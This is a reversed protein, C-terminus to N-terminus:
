GLSNCSSETYQSVTIVSISEWLRWMQQVKGLFWPFTDNMLCIYSLYMGHRPPLSAPLDIDTLYIYIYGPKVAPSSKIAPFCLDLPFFPNMVREQCKLHQSLLIKAMGLWALQHMFLFDAM